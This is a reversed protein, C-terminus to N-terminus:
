RGKRGESPKGSLAYDKQTYVARAGTKIDVKGTEHNYTGKLKDATYVTEGIYPSLRGNVPEPLHQAVVVEATREASFTSSLQKADFKGGGLYGKFLESM